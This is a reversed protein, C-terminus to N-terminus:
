ESRNSPARPFRTHFLPRTAGPAKECFRSAFIRIATLAEKQEVIPDLKEVLPKDLTCLRWGFQDQLLSRDAIGNNVLNSIFEDKDLAHNMRQAVLAAGRPTLGTPKDNNFEYIEARDKGRLDALCKGVSTAQADSTFAVPERKHLKELGDDDGLDNGASLCYQPIYTIEPGTDAIVRIAIDIKAKQLSDYYQYAAFLLACGGVVTSLATVVDTWKPRELIETAAM